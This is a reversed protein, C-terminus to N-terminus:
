FAAHICRGEANEFNLYNYQARSLLPVMVTGTFNDIFASIGGNLSTLNIAIIM